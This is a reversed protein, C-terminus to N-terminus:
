TNDTSILGSEHEDFHDIAMKNSAHKRAIGPSQQMTWAYALSWPTRRTPHPSTLGFFEALFAALVGLAFGILTAILAPGWQSRVRSEPVVAPSAFRVESGQIAGAISVETQKQALASYADWALDRTQTFQHMIANQQELKVQRDRIDKQLADVTTQFRQSAATYAALADQNAGAAGSPVTMTGSALLDVSLQQILQNLEVLKGELALIFSDLDAAQEKATVTVPVSVQLQLNGPLPSALSFAQAKLMQLALTNSAAAADGGKALQSRMARANQALQILQARADFADKLKKDREIVPQNFVAITAGVEQDVEVKGKQIAEIVAQKEAIERNLEDIQNNGIFAELTAQVREYDKRTREAEATVSNSYETPSGSYIANVYREYERAWANVLAAAVAPDAHSAKIEILDGRNVLDARVKGLLAAPTREGPQLQGQLESSVKQAVEGNKVLAVLASRRADANLAQSAGSTALEENTMTKFRPDLVLDTKTKIIAVGAAAEYGPPNILSIVLGAIAGLITITIVLRRRRVLVDVYRRLDISDEEESNDRPAAPLDAPTVNEPM